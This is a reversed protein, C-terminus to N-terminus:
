HIEGLIYRRGLGAAARPRHACHPPGHDACLLGPEDDSLEQYLMVMQGEQCVPIFTGNPGITLM